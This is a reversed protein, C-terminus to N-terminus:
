PEWQFQMIAYLYPKSSEYDLGLLWTHWDLNGNATTGPYYVSYFDIGTYPWAAQYTTGGVQIQDCTLRYARSFVDTLAPVILDHFSGQTPLGSAPALGWDVSFTSVFLFKAHEPDYNVVRGNRLLRADMGHAPSVLTGLLPGNSTLVASKFSDILSTVRSDSCFDSVPGSTASAAAVPATAPPPTASPPTTSPLVASQSTPSGLPAGAPESTGTPKPHGKPTPSPQAPAGLVSCAAPGVLILCAALLALRYSSM